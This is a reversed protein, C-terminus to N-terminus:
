GFRRPEVDRSHEIAVPPRGGRDIWLSGNNDQLLARVEDSLLGDRRTMYEVREPNVGAIDGQVRILGAGRTGVWLAGSRDVLVSRGSAARLPAPTGTARPHGAMRFAEVPDSVWITGARAEAVEGDTGAEILSFTREGASRRYLGTTTGAWLRSRSDRWLTLM